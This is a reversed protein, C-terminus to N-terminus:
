NRLVPIGSYALNLAPSFTMILRQRPVTKWEHLVLVARERLSDVAQKKAGNKSIAAAIRRSRVRRFISRMGSFMKPNRTLKIATVWAVTECVSNGKQRPDKM